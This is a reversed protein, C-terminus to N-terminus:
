ANCLRLVEAAINELSVVRDVAKRKIAEHPM